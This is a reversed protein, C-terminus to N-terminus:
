GDIRRKLRCPFAHGEEIRPRELIQSPLHEERFGRRATLPREQRNAIGAVALSAIVM